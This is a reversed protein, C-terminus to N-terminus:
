HRVRGPGIPARRREEPCRFPQADSGAHYHFEEGEAALVIQFGEVLAQTYVGDPAPCGLAGDPWTVAQASVVEIREADIGLREALDAVALREAPGTAAQDPLPRTM